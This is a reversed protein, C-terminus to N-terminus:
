RWILGVGFLLLKWFSSKSSALGFDLGALRVFNNALTSVTGDVKVRYIETGATVFLDGSIPDIALDSGVFPLSNVLISAVGSSTVQVVRGVLDTYFLDGNAAFDM